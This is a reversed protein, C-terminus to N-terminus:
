AKRRRRLVVVVVVVAAILVLAAVLWGVWAYDVPKEASVTEADATTAAAAAEEVPAACDAATTFAVTVPDLAEGAPYTGFAAAGAETLSAPAATITVAGGENELVGALELEAFEVAKNDVVAGDQTTGSIDLLLLASSADVFRIQPNAVTTNLVGSHGTFAISGAFALQGEGSAADYGGTGPGFGFDPVAYTAGNSVTWEGNAISGSIYARFSEKFGWTLTADDVVCGAFTAALEAGAITLEVGRDVSGQLTLTHTGSLGAPLRGTWTVVGNADATANTDLVTPTSYIVVLIGTENPRFGGATITVEDGAKLATGQVVQIGTTAPPTPAATNPAKFSAVTAGVTNSAVNPAGIVFSVPDLAAGVAYFGSGNLSFVAAGQATLSAPVGSYSVANGPTSRSGAALDLTAFPTPAGGNVSVLLTGSGARDVRVVPNGLTVDLLGAHGTFRVSGSYNSSGLGSAPDFNGGAAQGFTYSSGSSAVGSTTVAGKAIPGTVYDRFSQKVGWTLSGAALSAPSAIPALSPPVVFPPEPVAVPVEPEVPASPDAPVSTDIAFSVPDLSTGAPYFGGFAAAGAATLTAPTGAFSTSGATSTTTASALDLTAIVVPDKGDVTVALSGNSASTVRISPNAFDIDLVGDHGTFHVSGTYLATGVGTAANYSGGTRAPFTYVGGNDTVGATTITGHAIPSVIYDRFSKKVGWDLGATTPAPVTPAPTSPSPVTPSPVTPAAAFTIPTYTEFAPYAVGGGPYTYVGYNGTAPEGTFGPKVLMDISFTGDANIPVAGAGAGGVTAVDAPNVVWKLTSRDAARASSAAGESAKWTTAFKGFTVYVGGFKGALPPRAANTATGVPSFGSGTVTVTEGSSTLTSKSVTVTPAAAFTIPTYTEFAPYSVGGGPYTYVGYNGTAPEGTFGPKVLMEISFTGDANIPVAGAAAGGVTAVDAPNVVWKLTSRDAARASSAAGESAKWTNAFKGFTVYVGGFKGALPPRAANTATGVPSFGSGTVTVTEGAASVVSKSVVIKPGNAVPAASVTVTAAASTSAVFASPDAPTFVATISHAGPASFTASTWATGSAVPVTALSTAGDFFGVSGVAGAPSVTASLPVSTGVTAAAPAALATSTAVAPQVVPAQEVPWNFSVPDLATGAPYFGAFATAGEATLVAPAASFAVATPTSAAAAAALDVTAFVVDDSQVFATPAALSNSYVDVVIQAATASTRKVRVDSITLDLAYSGAPVGTGEHGQFHISGTYGVSGTSAPQSATGAGGTFAFPTTDTVNGAITWTGKAIPSKIYSRFSQKIGWDLTASTVDGTAASAPLAGLSLGSVVLLTTVLAALLTRASSSIRTATNV